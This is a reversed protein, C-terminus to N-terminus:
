SGFCDDIFWLSLAFACKSAMAGQSPVDAWSWVVISIVFDINGGGSARAKSFCDLKDRRSKGHGGGGGSVFSRQQHFVENVFDLVWGWGAGEM